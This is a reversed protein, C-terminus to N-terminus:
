VLRWWFSRRRVPCGRPLHGTDGFTLSWSDLVDELAGREVGGPYCRQLDDITVGFVQYLNLDAAIITFTRRQSDDERLRAILAADLESPL